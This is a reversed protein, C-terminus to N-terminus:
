DLYRHLFAVVEARGGATEFHGTEYRVLRWAAPASAEAYVRRLEAGVVRGVQRLERPLVPPESGRRHAVLL